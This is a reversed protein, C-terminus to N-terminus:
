KGFRNFIWRTCPVAWAGLVRGMRGSWKEKASLWSGAFHHITYTNATINVKGSRWDKPSLVEADLLNVGDGVVRKLREPM